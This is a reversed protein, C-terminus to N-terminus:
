VIVSVFIFSTNYFHKLDYISQTQHFYSITIEGRMENLTFNGWAIYTVVKKGTM